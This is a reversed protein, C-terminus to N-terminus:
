WALAGLSVTHEWLGNEAYITEIPFCPCPVFSNRRILHLIRLLLTAGYPFNAFLLSKYPLSYHAGWLCRWKSDLLTRKELPSRIFFCNVSSCIIPNRFCASPPTGTLSNHRQCPNLSAENQVQRAFNRPIVTDSALRNRSKQLQFLVCLKLSSYRNM